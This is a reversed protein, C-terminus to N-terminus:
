RLFFLTLVHQITMTLWTSLTTTKEAGSFSKTTWSTFRVGHWFSKKSGLFRCGNATISLQLLDVRYTNLVCTWARSSYVSYSLLIGLPEYVGLSTSETVRSGMEVKLRSSKQVGPLGANANHGCAAVITLWSAEYIMDMVNVGAHLDERDNQVLCLTDVWLYRKGLKKVLLIADRITRPVSKWAAKIGEPKVLHPRNTTSLRLSPVEGWIYSLAVYEPVERLEVLCEQEVDVLRLVSLGPFTEAFGHSDVVCSGLHCTECTSAWFSLRQVDFTPEITRYM